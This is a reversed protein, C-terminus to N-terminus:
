LTPTGSETKESLYKIYMEIMSNTLQQVRPLSDAPVFFWPPGDSCVCYEKTEQNVGVYLNNGFPTKMLFEWEINLMKVPGFKDNL